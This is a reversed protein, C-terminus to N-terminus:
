HHGYFLVDIEISEWPHCSFIEKLWQEWFILHQADTSFLCSLSVSHSVPKFNNTM